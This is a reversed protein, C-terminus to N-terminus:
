AEGQADPQSYMGEAKPPEFNGGNLEIRLGHDFMSIARGMSYGGTERMDRFMRCLIETRRKVEAQTQIKERFGQGMTRKDEEFSRELAGCIANRLDYAQRPTMHGFALNAEGFPKAIIINAM